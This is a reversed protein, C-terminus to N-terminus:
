FPNPIKSLLINPAEYFCIWSYLISQAQALTNIYPIVLIIFKLSLHLNKKPLQSDCLLVPNSVTYTHPLTLLFRLFPLSVMYNVNLQIIICLISVLTIHDDIYLDFSTNLNNYVLQLLSLVDVCSHRPM